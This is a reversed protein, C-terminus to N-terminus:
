TEPYLKHAAKATLNYSLDEEFVGEKVNMRAKNNSFVFEDDEVIVEDNVLWEIELDPSGSIYNKFDLEFM